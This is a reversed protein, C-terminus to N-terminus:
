TGHNVIYIAVVDGHGDDFGINLARQNKLITQGTRLRSAHSPDWFGHDPGLLGGEGPEFADAPVPSTAMFSALDRADIEVKFMLIDDIGNERAMGILRAKPPFTLGVERALEPLATAKPGKTTGERQTRRCDTGWALLLPLLLTALGVARTGRAKV